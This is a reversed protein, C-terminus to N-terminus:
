DNDGNEQNAPRHHGVIGIVSDQSKQRLAPGDFLPFRGVEIGCIPAETVTSDLAIENRGAGPCPRLREARRWLSGTFLEDSSKNAPRFVVRAIPKFRTIDPKLSSQRICERTLLPWLLLRSLVAGNRGAALHPSIQNKISKAVGM